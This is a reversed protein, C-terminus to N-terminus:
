RIIAKSQAHATHQHTEADSFLCLLDVIPHPEEVDTDTTLVAHQAVLLESCQFGHEFVVFM